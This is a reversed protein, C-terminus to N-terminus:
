PRTIEGKSIRDRFWLQNVEIHRVKGMGRRTAIGKAAAAATKWHIGVEAGLEKFMAQMGLGHAGGKVLGYYEAEGSSLAIVIQTSSLSKM